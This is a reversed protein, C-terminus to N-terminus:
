FTKSKSYLCSTSSFFFEKLLETERLDLKVKLKFLANLAHLRTKPDAGYLAAKKIKAIIRDYESGKKLTKAKLYHCLVQASPSDSYKLMSQDAFEALLETEIELDSLYEAAQIAKLFDEQKLGASLIDAPYIEAPEPATCGTLAFLVASFLLIQKKM